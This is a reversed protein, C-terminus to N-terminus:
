AAAVTKKYALPNTRNSLLFAAGLFLFIPFVYAMLGMVGFFFQSIASGVIGGLGFNSVLLIVAAALIVLLIIENQFGGSGNKKKKAKSNTTRKKTTKSAAM